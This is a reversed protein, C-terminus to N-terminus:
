QGERYGPWRHSILRRGLLSFLGGYVPGAAICLAPFAVLTFRPEVHLPTHVLTVYVPFLWIPL